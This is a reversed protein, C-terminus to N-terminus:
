YKELCLRALTGLTGVMKSRGFSYAFNSVFLGHYLAILSDNLAYERFKEPDERSFLEMDLYCKEDLYPKKLGHMEGLAQLTQSAASALLMTDRIYVNYGKLEIPKKM